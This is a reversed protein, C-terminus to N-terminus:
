KTISSFFWDRVTNPLVMLVNARVGSLWYPVYRIKPHECHVAEVMTEVVEDINERARKMQKRIVTVFKDYYDEGYVDKIDVPTEEWSKRYQKVLTDTSAIPTKYLGPEVTIVKIGFKSMEQRLGDSFAICAVKSMSYAAFAPLTFRGALSAVNIVRGKSERLLPLFAKTVRVMGMVNVNMIQQFQDVSCWEIESFVAIGANNVVSYLVKDELAEKVESVANRVQIDDTVDMQIVRCRDSTNDIIRQAGEGDAYLCCAFVTFGIKDLKRALANGFGTDCGTIIVAKNNPDLYSKPGFQFALIIVTIAVTLYVYVSEFVSYSLKAPLAFVGVVLCIGILLLLRSM